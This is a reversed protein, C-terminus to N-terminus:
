EDSEEGNKGGGQVKKRAKGTAKPHAASSPPLETADKKERVKRAFFPPMRRTPSRRRLSNRSSELEDKDHQDVIDQAEESHLFEFIEIDDNTVQHSLISPAERRDSEERLCHLRM